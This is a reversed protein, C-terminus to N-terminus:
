NNFSIASKREIQVQFVKRTGNKEFERMCKWSCFFKHQKQNGCKFVWEEDPVIFAKGCVLCEKENGLYKGVYM